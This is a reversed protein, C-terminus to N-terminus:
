EKKELEPTLSNLEEKIYVADLVDSYSEANKILKIAQNAKSLDVQEGIYM